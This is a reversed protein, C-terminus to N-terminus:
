FDVIEGLLIKNTSECAHRALRRLGSKQTIWMYPTLQTKVRILKSSHFRTQHKIFSRSHHLFHAPQESISILYIDETRNLFFVKWVKQLYM